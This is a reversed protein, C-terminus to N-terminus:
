LTSEDNDINSSCSSDAPYDITGDSDNDVGDQCQAFLVSRVGRGGYDSARVTYIYAAFQRDSTRARAPDLFWNGGRFGAGNASTGPWTSQNADGSSDLEGDGHEWRSFARGNANGITVAREWLSGSLDLNGYFGAGAAVRTNVGSAYSGVRLPGKVLAADWFSMNAGAQARENALGDNNISTAQTVSASGWAYEGAVPTKQPAPGRAAKEFELESMPRLGSWDLIAAVDAWAIFNMAVGAYTKGGGRDPLEADGSTWSVSNRNVLADSGKGDINLTGGTIDRTSKQTTTLMNFFAVWQNQSIESKMMYFAAHGKPYLAPITFTAPTGAEGTNGGSVYYYGNSTSDTVSIAGESTIEWPDTDASGQQLSASSTAYDGVHFGGEPVYVMEIGLVRIQVTDGSSAGNDAYSWQLRMDNAVFNGYGDDTRYLFLGVAPNTSANHALDPRRTGMHTTIAQPTSPITHGSMSLKLHKWDGDNIRIKCFIWAADWNYPETVSRWSSEWSVDFEVEGNGGSYPHVVLGTIQINGAHAHTIPAVLALVACLMSLVTTVRLRGKWAKIRNM